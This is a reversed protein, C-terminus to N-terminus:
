SLTFATAEGTRGTAGVLAEGHAAKASGPKQRPMLPPSASARRPQQMRIGHLDKVEKINVLRKPQVVDDKMLSILDTGGALVAADDWSAGLLQVAQEKTTASAYEFARM